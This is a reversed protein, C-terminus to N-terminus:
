PGRIARGYGEDGSPWAGGQAARRFLLSGGLRTYQEPAM